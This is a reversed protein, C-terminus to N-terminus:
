LRKLMWIVVLIYAATVQFAYQRAPGVLFVGVGILIALIAGVALWPAFRSVFALPALQSPATAGPTNAPDPPISGSNLFQVIPRLESEYAAHGGPILRNEVPASAHSRFGNFGASGVKTLSSLAFYEFLRPFLAVVWDRTGTYNIVKQVQGRDRAVKSWDYNKALVSGAFVVRRMRLSEYDLLAKGLLYTGNSHGFYDFEASPYKAYAETIEDMLWRVHRQRAGTLLFPGMGFYGYRPNEIKRQLPSEAPQKVETLEAEHARTEEEIRSAWRGLDRIGHVVLTVDSTTEDGTFSTDLEADLKADPTVLALELKQWRYAALDAKDPDDKHAAPDVRIIDSHGTGRVPITHFGRRPAGDGKQSHANMVSLDANDQTGVINDIDGLLQVVHLENDDSGRSKAFDSQGGSRASFHQIWDLRLNAVFPSGSEMDLGLRGVRLLDGLWSSAWFAFHRPGSMDSPRQGAIDVGRDLGALLVFRSVLKSWSTDGGKESRDLYARRALLAGSSHGVLIIDDVPKGKLYDQIVRDIGEAVDSASRNSLRTPFGPSGLYNVRLTEFRRTGSGQGPLPLGRIRRHVEDLSQDGGFGHVLVCLTRQVDVPVPDGSPYSQSVCRTEFEAWTRVTLIVAALCAVWHLAHGVPVGENGSVLRLTWGFVLLMGSVLAVCTVIRVGIESSVLDWSHLLRSVSILVLFTWLCGRSIPTGTYAALYAILLCVGAFVFHSM